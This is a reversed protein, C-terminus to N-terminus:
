HDTRLVNSPKGRTRIGGLENSESKFAFKADETLPILTQAGEMYHIRFKASQVHLRLAGDCGILEFLSKASHMDGLNVEMRSGMFHVLAYGGGGGVWLARYNDGGGAM